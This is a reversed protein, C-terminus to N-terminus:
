DKVTQTTRIIKNDLITHGRFNITLFVKLSYIIGLRLNIVAALFLFVMFNCKWFPYFQSDNLTFTSAIWIDNIMGFIILMNPPTKLYSSPSFLQTFLIVYQKHHWSTTFMCSLRLYLLVKFVDLLLTKMCSLKRERRLGM